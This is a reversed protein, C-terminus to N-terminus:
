DQEQLEELEAVMDSRKLKAFEAVEDEGVDYTQSYHEVLQNKTMESFDPPQKEVQPNLLAEEQEEIYAKYEAETVPELHGGRLASIVRGSKQENLKLPKIKDGSIKFGSYPDAFGRAKPGLRVYRVAKAM